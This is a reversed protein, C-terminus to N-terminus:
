WVLLKHKGSLQHWASVLRLNPTGTGRSTASISQKHLNIHKKANVKLDPWKKKVESMTQSESSAASVAAVVHQWEVFKRKNTIGPSHSSFLGSVLCLKILSAWLTLAGILKYM